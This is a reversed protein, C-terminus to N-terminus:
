ISNITVVINGGKVISKRVVRLDDIQSDDEWVEYKTLADLIGKPLNDLDRKRRDPPFVEIRVKLRQQTKTRAVRQVMLKKAAQLRYDKGKKTLALTARKGFVLPQWYGNVSPPWPMSFSDEVHAM